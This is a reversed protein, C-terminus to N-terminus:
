RTGGTEIDFIGGGMLASDVTLYRPRHNARKINAKSEQAVMAVEAPAQRGYEPALRLALNYVLAEEYGPPLSVSADLSAIQSLARQTFLVLKHATSPVPYLKLTRQPFGGDDYLSHPYTSTVTKDAIAAYEALSLLKLPLDIDNSADRILAKVIKMPRTTIDGSTGLTVTADYATLTLPSEETVAHVLLGETSWSDIMRNLTGLGDSAETADLSEGPALAGILRLSATIADRGTM